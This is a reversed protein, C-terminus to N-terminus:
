VANAHQREGVLLRWPPLGGVPARDRLVCIRFIAGSDAAFRENPERRARIRKTAHAQEGNQGGHQDRGDEDSAEDIGLV